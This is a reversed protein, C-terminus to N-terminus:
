HTKKRMKKIHSKIDTFYKIADDLIPEPDELTAAMGAYVQICAVMGKYKEVQEDCLFEFVKKVLAGEPTTLDISKMDCRNVTFLILRGM